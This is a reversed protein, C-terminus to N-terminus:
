GPFTVEEIMDNAVLMRIADCDISHGARYSTIKGLLYGDEILAVAALLDLVARHWVAELSKGEHILRPTNAYKRRGAILVNENSYGLNRIDAFMRGLTQCYLKKRYTTNTRAIAGRRFHEGNVPFIIRQKGIASPFNVACDLLLSPHSRDVPEFILFKGDPTCFSVREKVTYYRVPHTAEIRGARDIAEVLPVSGDDFLPPDGSDIQIVMNDVEMGMRLAIIHEVLRIYNQPPGSRLVINSVIQGTTWVNHISVRVPLCDPHDVRDFWWGEMTTPTFTVTREAKGFFTGPGKVTVPERLTTQNTRIPAAPTNSLDWDVQQASFATYASQMDSRQGSLLTGFPDHSM